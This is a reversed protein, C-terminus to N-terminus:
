DGEMLADEGNCWSGDEEDKGAPSAKMQELEGVFGLSLRGVRCLQYTCLVSFENKKKIGQVKVGELRIAFM